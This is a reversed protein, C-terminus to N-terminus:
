PIEKKRIIVANHERQAILAYNYVNRQLCLVPDEPPFKAEDARLFRQATRNFVIERMAQDHNYEGKGLLHAIYRACWNDEPAKQKMNWGMAVLSVRAPQRSLIYQATARAVNYGAVLVEDAVELATLAGQVGASTRQVATKGIFFSVKQRLIESPSNGLDFGEVPLGDVEGVLIYDQHRDKLALAEHPQSVLISKKLGLSFMLPTCSFARFVDIIVAIGRAAKAGELLYGVNIQM